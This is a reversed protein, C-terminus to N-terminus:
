EPNKPTKPKLSFFRKIRQWFTPSQGDFPSSALQRQLIFFNEMMMMYNQYEVEFKEVKWSCMYDGMSPTLIMTSDCGKEKVNDVSRHSMYTEHWAANVIQDFPLSATGLVYEVKEKEGYESDLAKRAKAASHPDFIRIPFVFRAQLPTM